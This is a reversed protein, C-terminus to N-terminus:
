PVLDARRQYQNLVNAWAADVGQQKGVLGNYTGGVAVAVIGGVVLLLGVLVVLVVGIKKM